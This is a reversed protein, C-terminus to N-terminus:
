KKAPKLPKGTYPDFKPAKEVPVEEVPTEQPKAEEGNFPLDDDTIDISTLDPEENKKPELFEISDAIVVYSSGKSGDKREFHRQIISGKVALKNGKRVYKAVSEAVNNFCKVDFFSTGDEKTNDVALTLTVVATDKASKWLEPDKTTRGMLVLCNLM